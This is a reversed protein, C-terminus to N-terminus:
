YCKVSVSERFTRKYSAFYYANVYGLKVLYPTTRGEEDIFEVEGDRVYSAASVGKVGLPRLEDQLRLVDNASYREQHGRTKDKTLYVQVRRDHGPREYAQEVMYVFLWAYAFCIIGVALCLASILQHSRYKGMQRVAIKLYHLLM